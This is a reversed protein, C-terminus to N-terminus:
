QPSHSVLSASTLLENTEAPVNQIGTPKAVATITRGTLLILVVGASRESMHKQTGKLGESEQGDSQGESRWM